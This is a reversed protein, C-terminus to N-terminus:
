TAFTTMAFECVVSANGFRVSVLWVLAPPLPEGNTFMRWFATNGSRQPRM